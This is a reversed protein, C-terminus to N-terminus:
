VVDVGNDKRRRLRKGAGLAGLLAMGGWAAAPLPVANNVGGPGAEGRAAFHAPEGRPAPRARFGPRLLAPVM